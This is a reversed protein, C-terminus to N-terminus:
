GRGVLMRDLGYVRDIVLMAAATLAIMLASVAAMMPDISETAYMYM